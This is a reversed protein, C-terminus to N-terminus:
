KGGFVFEATEINLKDMKVVVWKTLPMSANPSTGGKLRPHGYNITLVQGDLVISKIEYGSGSATTFGHMIIMSKEFDVETPFEKFIEDFKGQEQVLLTRQQPYMEGDVYKEQVSSWSGHTL